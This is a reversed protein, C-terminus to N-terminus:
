GMDEIADLTEEHLSDLSSTGYVEAEDGDNINDWDVLIVEIDLDTSVNIVVGGDVEIVVRSKSIM